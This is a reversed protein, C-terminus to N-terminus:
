LQRILSGSGRRIQGVAHDLRDLLAQPRGKLDQPVSAIAAHLHIQELAPLEPHHQLGLDLVRQALARAESPSQVQELVVVFRTDDLRVPVDGPSCAERLIRACAKMVPETIGPGHAQQLDELNALRLMVVAGQTNTRLARVALSMLLGPLEGGHLLGTWRDLRAGERRAAPDGMMDRASFNLAYTLIVIELGAGAMAALGDPRWSGMWGRVAAAELVLGAAAAAFGAAYWGIYPLRVGRVAWLLLAVTALVLLYYGQQALGLEALGALAPWVLYAVTLCVGLAAVVLAWGDVRSGGFARPLLRRAFMLSAVALLTGIIVRAARGLEADHETLLMRAYGTQVLQFVALLLVHLAYWGNVADGRLLAEGLAYALAMVVVGLFLGLWLQARARQALWGERSWARVQPVFNERHGLRLLVETRADLTLPFALRPALLPWAALNITDGADLRQWPAEPARRTYLSARAILTGPLELVVPGAPAVPQLRWRLWVEAPQAPQRGAASGAAQWGRAAWAQDPTLGGSPDVLLEASRTLLQAQGSSLTLVVVGPDAAAAQGLWGALLIVLAWLHRWGPWGGGAGLFAETAM